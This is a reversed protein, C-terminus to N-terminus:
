QPSETGASAAAQGFPPSRLQTLRRLNQRAVRDDPRADLAARFAEEAGAFDRAKLRVRGQELAEHYDLRHGAPRPQPEPEPVDSRSPLALPEGLHLDGDEVSALVPDVCEARSLGAARRALELPWGDNASALLRALTGEARPPRHTVPCPALRAWEDALRCGEMILELSPAVPPAPPVHQRDLSFREGTVLFLELAAARGELGECRAAVPAGEAFILEGVGHLVLRGSLAEGEILQLLSPLSIGGLTGSLIEPM